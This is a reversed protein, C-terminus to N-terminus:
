AQEKKSSVIILIGSCIIIGGVIFNMTLKEGLFIIGLVASTLPQVPYFLSCTTADLLQLSKNYLTHSLATCVLGIYALSLIGSITIKFPEACMDAISVPITFCLAITIAYFSIQIPDYKNAISRVMCSSASWLIVSMLNVAVGLPTVNGNQNVGLIIYVGIVAFVISICIRLNVKENLFLAAIVPMIVPNLSNILSSVSADVLNTGILQCTIAAFYGLAGVGFFIKKDKKEIRKFGKRKMIIFLAAASFLYRGALVIIPTLNEMAYKSVVFLSGWIFFTLILYIYGKNNHLSFVEKIIQIFMFIIREYESNTLLNTNNNIIINLLSSIIIM